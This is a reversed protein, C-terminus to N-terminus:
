SDIMEDVTQYHKDQLFVCFLIHLLVRLTANISLINSNKM